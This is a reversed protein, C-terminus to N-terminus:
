DLFFQSKALFFILTWFLILYVAPVIIISTLRFARCGKKARGTKENELTDLFTWTYLFSNMPELMIAFDFLFFLVNQALTTERFRIARNTLLWLAYWFSLTCAWVFISNIQIALLPLIQVLKKKKWGFYVLFIATFFAIPLTLIPMVQWVSFDVQQARFGM